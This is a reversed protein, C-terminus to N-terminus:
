SKPFKPDALIEKIQQLHRNAHSTMFLVLQYCDVPGPALETVHNRLDETTNRIYKIHETRITKFAALTEAPTTWTAKSPQLVDPAKYTHSRDSAM